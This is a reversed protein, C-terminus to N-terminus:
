EADGGEDALRLQELAEDLKMSPLERTPDGEEFCCMDAYKCYQCGDRLGSTPCVDIAGNHLETAMQILLREIHHRIHGFQELTALTSYWAFGKQTATAPIFIGALDVEMAQLIERNDILLGNAKMTKLRMTELKDAPTDRTAKVM